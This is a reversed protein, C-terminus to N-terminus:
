VVRACHYVSGAIQMGIVMGFALASLLLAFLEGTTTEEPEM